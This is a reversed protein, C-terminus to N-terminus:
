WVWGWVGRGGWLGDVEGGVRSWWFWSQALDLVQADYDYSGPKLGSESEVSSEETTETGSTSSVVGAKSAQAAGGASGRPSAEAMPVKPRWEKEGDHSSAKGKAKPGEKGSSEQVAEAQISSVESGGSEASGSEVKPSEPRRLIRGKEAGRPAEGESGVGAAAAPVPAATPAPAGASSAKEQSPHQLNQAAVGGDGGANRPANGLISSKGPGGSVNHGSRVNGSSARGAAPGIVERSHSEVRKSGREWKGGSDKTVIRAVVEKDVVNQVKREGQEKGVSAEGGEARSKATAAVDVSRQPAVLESNVAVVVKKEEDKASEVETVSKETDADVRVDERKVEEVVLSEERQGGAPSQKGSGKPSGSVVEEEFVPKSFDM